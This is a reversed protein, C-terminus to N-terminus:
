RLHVRMDFLLLVKCPLGDHSGPIWKPCRRLASVFANRVPEPTDPDLSRAAEIEGEESLVAEIKVHSRYHVESTDMRLHTVVWRSCDRLTGSDEPFVPKVQVEFYPIAASYLEDTGEPLVHVVIGTQEQAYASGAGLLLTTLFALVLATSIRMTTPRVSHHIFLRPCCSLGALGEGIRSSAFVRGRM